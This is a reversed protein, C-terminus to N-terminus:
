ERPGIIRSMFNISSPQHQHYRSSWLQDVVSSSAWSWLTIRLCITDGRPRYSVRFTTFKQHASIDKKKNNSIMNKTSGSSQWEESRATKSQYRPKEQFLVYSHHPLWYFIAYHRSQTCPLTRTPWYQYQHHEHNICVIKKAMCEVKSQTPDTIISATISNGRSWPM